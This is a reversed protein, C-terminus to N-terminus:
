NSTIIRTTNGEIIIMKNGVTYVKPEREKRLYYGKHLEYTKRSYEDNMTIPSLNIPVLKLNQVFRDWEKLRGQNALTTFEVIEEDYNKVAKKSFVSVREGGEVNKGKMLTEGGREHSKGDVMFTGGEGLQQETVAYSAANQKLAKVMGYLSLIGAAGLALGLLGAKSVGDAILRIGTLVMESLQMATNLAIQAAAAKKQEELAKRREARLIAQRKKEDAIEKQKLDYNNAYGQQMRDWEHELERQLQDIKSNSADIEREVNAVWQDAAERRADVMDTLAEKTFDVIQNFYKKFEDLEDQSLGLFDALWRDWGSVDSETQKPPVSFLLDLQAKMVAIAAAVELYEQSMEGYHWKVKEAYEELLKINQEKEKIELLAKVADETKEYAGISLGLRSMESKVFEDSARLQKEYEIRIEKFRLEETAMAAKVSNLYELKREAEIKRVDENYKKAIEAAERYYQEEALLLETNLQVQDTIELKALEKREQMALRALTEEKEYQTILSQDIIELEERQNKYKTKILSIQERLQEATLRNINVIEEAAELFKQNLFDIQVQFGMAEYNLKMQAQLEANVGQVQNKIKGAFDDADAWFASVGIANLQKQVTGWGDSIDLTLNSLGQYLKTQEFTDGKLNPPRFAKPTEEYKQRQLEIEKKILDNVREQRKEINGQSKDVKEFIADRQAKLADTETKLRKNLWEVRAFENEFKLGEEEKKIEEFVKRVADGAQEVKAMYNLMEKPTILRIIETLGELTSKLFRGLTGEGSEISLIFAQWSGKLVDIKKAITGMQEEYAKWLNQSALMEDVVEEYIMLFLRFKENTLGAIGTLARINGFIQGISKPSRQFAINLDHLTSTFSRAQVEAAGLPIRIDKFRDNLEEIEKIAEKSPSILQNFVNRLGTVSEETNLGIKTISAFAALMEQYTVKTIAAIANVRGMSKVMDEIYTIGYKQATFYAAAVNEAETAELNFANITSALGKVTSALDTVGGVALRSAASMFSYADAAGIGASIADFLGKNVDEVAFGYESILKISTQKLFPKYLTEQQKNLLTLVNTFSKEFNVVTDFADKLARKFKNMAGILTSSIFNGLFNFKFQFSGLAKSWGLQTDKAKTIQKNVRELQKNIRPLDSEAAQLQLSRLEKQRAVLGGLYGVAEKSQKEAKEKYKSYRDAEQSLKRMEAVDKSSVTRKSAITDIQATIQELVAAVNAFQQENLYFEIPIRVREPM